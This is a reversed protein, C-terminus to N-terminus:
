KEEQAMKLEALRQKEAEEARYREDRWRNLKTETEHWRREERATWAAVHTEEQLWEEAEYRAVRLLNEQVQPPLRSLDVPPVQTSKVHNPLISPLRHAVGKM